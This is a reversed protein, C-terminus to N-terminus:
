GLKFAEVAVHRATRDPGAGLQSEFLVLEDTVWTPGAYRGLASAIPALDAGPSGRAITLHPRYPRDDVDLGALRAATTASAALSRLASRDGAVGVWLVRDGFRGGGALNLQLRRHWGASSRLAAILPPECDAAVAGCFVLTLHWSTPHTWRLASPPSGPPRVTRDDRRLREVEAALDSRVREPLQLAVFLRRAARGPETM